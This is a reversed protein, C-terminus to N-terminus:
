FIVQQSLWFPANHTVELSCQLTGASILVRRGGHLLWATGQAGQALMTNPPTISVLRERVWLGSSGCILLCRAWSQTSATGPHAPPKASGRKRTVATRPVPRAPCGRRAAGPHARWRCPDWRAAGHRTLLLGAM